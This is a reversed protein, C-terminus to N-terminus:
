EPEVTVAAGLKAMADRVQAATWARAAWATVLRQVAVRLDRPAIEHLEATVFLSSAIEEVTPGPPPPPPPPPLPAPPPAPPQEVRVEVGLASALALGVNRDFGLVYSVLKQAQEPTPAGSEYIWRSVTRTSVGAAVALDNNRLRLQTKAQYIADSTTAM